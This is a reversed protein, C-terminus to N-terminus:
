TESLDAFGDQAGFFVPAFGFALHRRVVYGSSSGIIFAALLTIVILIVLYIQPKNLKLQQYNFPKLKFFRAIQHGLFAELLGAIILTLLNFPLGILYGLFWFFTTM